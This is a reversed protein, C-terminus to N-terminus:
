DNGDGVAAISGLGDEGCFTGTGFGDGVAVGRNVAVADTVGATLGVALPALVKVGGPLAGLGDPVLRAGTEVAVDM